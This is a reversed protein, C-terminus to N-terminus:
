DSSPLGDTMPLSAGDHVWRLKEDLHFNAMPTVANPDELLAAYFHAEDPYHDAQFFMPSGCTRCFGRRVGPSSEYVAIADGTWRWRGNEQGIFTTM